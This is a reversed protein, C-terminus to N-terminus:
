GYKKKYEGPTMGSWRRFARIFHASDTYGPQAAIGTTTSDPDKLGSKALAFRAEGLLVNFSTGHAKIRRQIYHLDM